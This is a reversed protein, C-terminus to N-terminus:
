KSIVLSLWEGRTSKELSRCKYKSIFKLFEEKEKILLGSLIIIGDKRVANYINDFLECLTNKLINTAIIDFPVSDKAKEISGYQININEAVGNLEANERANDVATLDIDVAEIKSAGLKAALISLIGSGTGLDFFSKGRVTHHLMSKICMSTSEHHGTGFAMKPEIIINIDHKDSPKEWPPHIYLEDIEIPKVSKRFKEVWDRSKINDISINDYNIRFDSELSNVYEIIKEIAIQTTDEPSYFKLGIQGPYSTDDLILGSALNDTIFCGIADHLPTPVFFFIENYSESFLESDDM